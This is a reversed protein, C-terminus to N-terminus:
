WEYNQGGILSKMRHLHEIESQEAAKAVEWEHGDMQAEIAAELRSRLERPPIAEVEVAVNADLREEACLSEFRKFNTDKRNSAHATYRDSQVDAATVAVREFRLPADQDGYRAMREGVANEIALGSPDWDGVYLIHVPRGDAKYDMAAERVYAKSSQGRCVFLEVGYHLTIPQIVGAISDSECWVEVKRPQYAWLDRRYNAIWTELADDASLYMNPRRVWRTNDSIWHWPLQEDERMQGALRVVMSYNKRKGGTDKDWYRGIGLYYIQRVTCVKNDRALDHIATRLAEM